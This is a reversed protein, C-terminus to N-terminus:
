SDTNQNANRSDTLWYIGTRSGYFARRRDNITGGYGLAGLARFEVEISTLNRMDIGNTSCIGEFFEKKMPPM